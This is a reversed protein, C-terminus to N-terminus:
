VHLCLTCPTECERCWAQMSQRAALTVLHTQSVIAWFTALGMKTLFLAKEVPILSLTGWISKSAISSQNSPMVMM